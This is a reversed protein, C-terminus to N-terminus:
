WYAAGTDILDKCKNHKDDVYLFKAKYSAINAVERQGITKYYSGPESCLRAKEGFIQHYYCVQANVTDIPQVANNQQISYKLIRPFIKDLLM